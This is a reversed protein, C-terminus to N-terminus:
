ALFPAMRGIDLTHKIDYVVVESSHAHRCLRNFRGVLAVHFTDHSCRFFRLDLLARFSGSLILCCTKVPTQPSM